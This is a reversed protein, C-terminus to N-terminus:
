MRSEICVPWTNRIVAKITVQVPRVMVTSHNVSGVEDLALSKLYAEVVAIVARCFM